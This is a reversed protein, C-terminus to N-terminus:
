RSRYVPPPSATFYQGWEAPPVIRMYLDMAVDASPAFTRYWLSALPDRPARQALAHHASGSELQYVMEGIATPACLLLAISLALRNV